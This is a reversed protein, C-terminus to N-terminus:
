KSSEVTGSFTIKLLKRGEQQVEESNGKKLHYTNELVESLKAIIQPNAVLFSLDTHFPKNERYTDILESGANFRVLDVVVDRSIKQSVGRLFDFPSNANPAFLKSMEREKAVETEVTKKLKDPDALHNRVANDSISSGSTTGFYNKVARKLQDDTDSLRAQYYRYEVGKTAFFVLSMVAIYPLPKRILDWVSNDDSSVKLFEGKRFNIPQIKETSIASMGLALAKAFQIESEESYSLRNQSLLAFPRFLSAAKGTASGIWQIFGPLSAGAGTVWIQEIPERLSARAALETQKLEPILAELCEMICDSVKPDIGTVGVDRIWTAVEAQTASFTEELHREIKKLGFQIERFLVPKQDFHIYFFIKNQEFGLLLIPKNSVIRQFLSRYAWPDTTIVEPDIGFSRISDLFNRFSEKKTAGVHISSGQPSSGVNAFDYHLNERDFPLDDELEFELASRIAKKDKSAIQLNRFTCIESPASILLRDAKRSLSNLLRYAAAEPAVGEDVRLDHMDRIEFRGFATDIEVASIRDPHIDLGVVRM